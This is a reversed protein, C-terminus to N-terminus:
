SYKVLQFYPFRVNSFYGNRDAFTEYFNFPVSIASQMWWEFVKFAWHM